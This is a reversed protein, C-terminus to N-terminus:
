GIGGTLEKFREVEAAALVLMTSYGSITVECMILRMKSGRCEVSIVSRQIRQRGQPETKQLSNRSTVSLEVKAVNRARAETPQLRGLPGAFESLLKQEEEAAYAALGPSLAQPAPLALRNKLDSLRLIAILLILTSVFALAFGFYVECAYWASARFTRCKSPVQLHGVGSWLLWAATLLGVIGIVCLLDCELPYYRRNVQENEGCSHGTHEPIGTFRPLLGVQRSLRDFGSRSCVKPDDHIHGLWDSANKAAIHSTLLVEINTSWNYGGDAYRKAHRINTLQGYVGIDLADYFIIPLFQSHGWIPCTGFLFMLVYPRRLNSSLKLSDTGFVKCSSCQVIDAASDSKDIESNLDRVTVAGVHRFDTLFIRDNSSVRLYSEAGKRYQAIWRETGTLLSGVVGVLACENIPWWLGSPDGHRLIGQRYQEKVIVSTLGAFQFRTRVVSALLPPKRFAALSLLLSLGLLAWCALLLRWCTNESHSM